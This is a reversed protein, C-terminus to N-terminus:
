SVEPWGHGLQSLLAQLNSWGYAVEELDAGGIPVTQERILQGGLGEYFRRAPLNAALVWLLFAPVSRQQLREVAAQMLRRGTGQRQHEALLYITQLEFPYDQAQTQAPGASTFGIIDASASDVAVM